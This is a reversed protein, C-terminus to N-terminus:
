KQPENPRGLVTKQAVRKALRGADFVFPPLVYKLSRVLKSKPAPIRPTKFYSYYREAMAQDDVGNTYYYAAVSRRVRGDPAAVPDPHGHLSIESQSFIITRGFEPLVREGCCNEVASWLELAGGYSPLWNKNLYTILVLRNQLNTVSHKSFDLHVDFRGGLRSEHLGGGRLLPDPLLGPIGTLSTLFKVFRGSSLTDFYILTAPSLEAKPPSRLTSQRDHEIKKWNDLRFSDFDNLVYKLLIPSFLGDLVIHPFPAAAMYNAHLGDVREMLDPNVLGDYPIVEGGLDVSAVYQRPTGERSM